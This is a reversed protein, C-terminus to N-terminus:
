LPLWQGIEPPLLPKIGKVLGVLWPAAQSASWWPSQAAPTLLVVTTLALLLVGGRMLGFAGGLVRDMVSLPTAAVLWRVVRALLGWAILVVLFSAVMAASQNLASGEAGVPIWPAAQPALWAAAFYAVVWGALGMMEFVLGRALGIGTSVLLIGALVWDVTTAATM